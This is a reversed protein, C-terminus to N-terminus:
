LKETSKRYAQSKCNCRGYSVNETYIHLRLELYDVWQRMKHANWRHDNLINSIMNVDRRRETNRFIHRLGCPRKQAPSVAWVIAIPLEKLNSSNVAVKYQKSTLVSELLAVSSFNLIIISSYKDTVKPSRYWLVLKRGVLSSSDTVRHYRWNRLYWWRAWLKNRAWNLQYEGYLFPCPLHDSARTKWLISHHSLVTHATKAQLFTLKLKDDIRKSFM